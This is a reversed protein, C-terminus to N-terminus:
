TVHVLFTDDDDDDKVRCKELVSDYDSDKNVVLNEM